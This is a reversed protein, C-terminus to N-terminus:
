EFGANTTSHNTFLLASVPGLIYPCNVGFADYILGLKRIAFKTFIM